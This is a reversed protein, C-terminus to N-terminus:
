HGHIGRRRPFDSPLAPQRTSIVLMVCQIDAARAGLIPASRRKAWEIMPGDPDVGIARRGERLAVWAVSDGSTGAFDERLVKPVHAPSRALYMIRLVEAHTEPDQVAWRYLELLDIGEPM